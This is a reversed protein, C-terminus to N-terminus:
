SVWDDPVVITSGFADDVIGVVKMNCVSQKGETPIRYGIIMDLGKAELEAIIEENTM